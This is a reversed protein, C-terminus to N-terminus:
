DTIASMIEPKTLKVGSQNLSNKPVIQVDYSASLLESIFESRTIPDAIFYLKKKARTMAVYLLRREESHRFGDVQPLLAELVSDEKNVNPFGTNEKSFGVLICYDAELGKSGHFTWYLINDNVCVHSLETEANNLLYRYRALVAISGTPDLARITNVVQAISENLSNKDAEVLYVQSKEVQHHAEIKKSYQEPNQM